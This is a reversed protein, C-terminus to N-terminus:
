NFITSYFITMLQTRVCKLGIKRIFIFIIILNGLSINSFDTFLIVYFSFGIKVSPKLSFDLVHTKSLCLQLTKAVQVQCKTENLKLAHKLNEYFM